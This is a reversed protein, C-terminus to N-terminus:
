PTCTSFFVPPAMLLVDDLNIVGNTNLDMRTNYNADGAVSFFVPPAMYLVDDLNVVQDDNLDPPHADPDEDNHNPTAACASQPLTGILLECADCYGDGDSDECADGTGNADLDEQGPNPVSPCNDVDDPVGDGDSDPTPTPAPTPSPTPTPTPTPTPPSLGCALDTLGVALWADTTSQAQQSGSGFLARADAETAARAQCMTANAPLATFGLFFIREADTLGIGTVNLNNDQVDGDSCHASDHTSPETCSANQGGNVLLYYAHNPIGSNSHVGGNDASTVIFETYHDPDRDEEPDAMNRFGPVTDARLYIDEAVWWDACTAQGDAKVCNSSDPEDAFFEASNGIIDSFSENLAGSEDQYILDSTCDTVGHAYEHGVVDLGGSFERSSVGDGDGYVTYTGNWFANDYDNDYHAVSQMATYGCDAIWDLGHVLNLYDDVLKANYHADILAPHGPSSRDSTVLDWIDDSETVGYIFPNRNRYDYTVQRDDTSILDYHPDGPADHFTTLGRLDKTDGKVGIGEGTEIANYENLVQGSAADIWQFNRSAFARSEVRFFFRGSDPDIMLDTLREAGPGVSEEAIRAAAAPSLSITNAPAVDSYHSGVVATVVGSSDRYLTLQAGLVQAPGLYQQYREYSLGNPGLDISAVLRVDSALVFTSADGGSLARFGSRTSSGQGATSPLLAALAVLLGLLLVVAYRVTARGKTTPQTRGVSRVVIIRGCLTRLGGCGAGEPQGAARPPPVVGPHLHRLIHPPATRVVDFINIVSDPALDLRAQYPPGPAASFFVPPALFVVDFINVVHDGNFDPRM